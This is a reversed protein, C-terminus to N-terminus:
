PVTVSAGAGDWVYGNATVDTVQYTATKTKKNMNTTFTCSGSADTTCGASGGSSWTGSVLAGSVSNSAADAISVTVTATWGGKRDGASGDLVAIHMVQPPPPAATVTVSHSVVAVQGATDTVTLTVPYTGDAGYTHAAMVGSGSGGDGFTWGYSSIGHDDSSGSANFTCSLDTCSDTFAATPPNDAVPGGNPWYGAAWTVAALKAQGSVSPHFFDGAVDSSSFVVNYVANGDFRCNPYVSCVNALATNYEVNRQAVAARRAVDTATTSTPNALLSQCIGGASWIFRAWWNNHFLQWLQYVNPISAVYVLTDPSGRTLTDMATQFEAGFTTVPTMQAVTDTCLDNGGILVTLYDPQLSVVGAMQGNLDAMDAGSVSHNYAHGSVAANLALLRQYHSNVSTNTGTSWSNAPYTAGLSGGSSVAQSISDGVAAVSSPLPPPGDASVLASQTTVLLAGIALALIWSRRAM